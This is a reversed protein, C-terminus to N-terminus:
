ASARRPAALVDKIYRLHAMLPYLDGEVRAAGIRTMAFLDHYGPAPVPAWFRQWADASARIAFSWPRLLFPGREVSAIRGEVVRILYATDGVGLLFTVTLFRGRRVLAPDADVLAPLAEIEPATVRAIM